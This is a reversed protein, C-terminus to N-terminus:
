QPKVNGEKEGGRGEGAPVRESHPGQVDNLEGALVVPSNAALLVRPQLLLQFRHVPCDSGPQQYCRVSHHVAALGISASQRCQHPLVQLAEHM